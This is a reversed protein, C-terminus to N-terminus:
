VSLATIPVSKYCKMSSKNLKSSDFNSEGNKDGYNELIVLADYVCIM